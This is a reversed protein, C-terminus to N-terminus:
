GSLLITMMTLLRDSAFKYVESVIEDNGDAKM